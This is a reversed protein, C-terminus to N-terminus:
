ADKVGDPCCLRGVCQLLDDIDFPKFLVELRDRKLREAFEQVEQVAGTCVLVPIRRTREDGELVDLVAFPTQGPMRVDSIVLDPCGRQLQEQLAATSSAVEARFGEADLLLRMFDLYDVSDDVILIHKAVPSASNM